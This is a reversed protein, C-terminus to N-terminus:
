IDQQFLRYDITKQIMELLYLLTGNRKVSDALQLYHSCPLLFTPDLVQVVSNSIDLHDKILNIGDKERM